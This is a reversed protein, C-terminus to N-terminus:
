LLKIKLSNSTLSFNSIRGGFAIAVQPLIHEIQAAITNIDIIFSRRKWMYIMKDGSVRQRSMLDISTMLALCWSSGSYSVSYSILITILIYTQIYLYVTHQEYTQPLNSDSRTLSFLKLTDCSRLHMVIVYSRRGM